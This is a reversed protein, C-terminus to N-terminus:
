LADRHDSKEGLYRSLWQLIESYYRDRAALSGNSAVSHSERPFICMKTPIGHVKLATFLMQGQSLHCFRDAEGHLILTPTKMSDIRSLPSRKWLEEPNTYGSAKMQKASFALGHDSTAEMSICNSITGDCIAAAFRNTRSTIASALYAGYGTGMIALRSPDIEPCASLAFELFQILASYDKEGWDGGLAAYQNGYGISGPLNVFLVAYGFQALLQMGFHYVEGFAQQPGDHLFVVAPCSQNEAEERLIWGHIGKHQIAVMPRYPVDEERHLLSINEEGKSSLYYVEHCNNGRLGAFVIHSAGVDLQDISGTTTTLCKLELGSSLKYIQSCGNQTAVFYLTDGDATFVKGCSGIDSVIYNGIALEPSCITKTPGGSIPVQKIVPATGAEQEPSCASFFVANSGIAIQTIEDSSKYILHDVGDWCRIEDAAHDFTSHTHGAYAIRNQDVSILQVDMKDPSIYRVQGKNSCLLLKRRVKSCYGMGDKWIPLEDLITWYNNARDKEPCVSCQASILLDGDVAGVVAATLDLHTFPTEVGNAVSLAFFATGGCIPRSIALTKEDMWVLSTVGPSGVPLTCSYDSVFVQSIYGNEEESPTYVLFACMKGSPSVCLHSSRRIALLEPYRM